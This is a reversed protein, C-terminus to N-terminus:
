GTPLDRYSLPCPPRLHLGPPLSSTSCISRMFNACSGEIRPFLYVQGEVLSDVSTRCTKFGRIAKMLSM